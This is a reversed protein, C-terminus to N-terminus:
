LSLSENIDLRKKNMKKILLSHIRKLPFFQDEVLDFFFISLEFRLKFIAPKM